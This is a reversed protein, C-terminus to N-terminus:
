NRKAEARQLRDNIAKGLGVDPVYESVILQLNLADLQRLGTFLRTAAENLDGKKSLMFQHCNSVSKYEKNLSFIGRMKNLNQALLM